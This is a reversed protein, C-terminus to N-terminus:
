QTSKLNSNEQSALKEFVNLDNERNLNQIKIIKVENRELMNFKGLLNKELLNLIDSIEHDSMPLHLSNKITSILQTTSISLLNIEKDLTHIKYVQYIIDYIIKIKGILYNEYKKQKTLQENEENKLKEKQKIRELLSLGKNSEFKETKEKYIFKSKDNKLDKFKNKTPSSSNSRPKTIKNPSHQTSNNRIIVENLETSPLDLVNQNALIWKNMEQTFMEIRVKTDNNPAINAFNISIEGNTNKYFKYIPLIGIIQEIDAVTM